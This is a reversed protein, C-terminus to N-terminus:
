RRIAGSRRPRRRALRTYDGPLGGYVRSTTSCSTAAAADPRSTHCARRLQAAPDAPHRPLVRRRRRPASSRRSRRAPRRRRAHAAADGAVLDAVPYGPQAPPPRSSPSRSSATRTAAAATTACRARGCRTGPRRWTSCWATATSRRSRSRRTPRSRRWSAPTPIARPTSSRAAAPRRAQAAPDRRPHAPARERPERLAAAGSTRATAATRTRSWRSRHAGGLHRREAYKGADAGQTDWNSSQGNECTNFADLGDFTDAWPTCAAPSARASTSAASTGVLGYPTGAPLEAHVRATTRAAVAADGARRRRARGRVARGRAAVGRQLGPREQDAGARRARRGVDGGPILYLGADYYPLPRRGTSTTRRGRRGCSSCTTTRRRRRTRSSASACAAPASRRRRTTATRSRRSRTCAARRSRCASRTALLGDGITQDIPPNESSSRPTSRAARRAAAAAPLRYLAGFGNNNLNYYDVVVLDGDGLQTM